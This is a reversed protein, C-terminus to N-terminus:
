LKGIGRKKIRMLWALPLFLFPGVIASYIPIWLFQVYFNSVTPEAKLFTFFRTSAAILVGTIFIVFSQYPMKKIAVTRNLDALLTGFIGFSIIQPGMTSGIIDAAFGITFSVIIADKDRSNIAFFVLLIILLNPAVKAPPIAIIDILSTQLITIILVLAAFRFWRMAIEEYSFDGFLDKSL